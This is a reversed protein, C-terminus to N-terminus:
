ARIELALGGFSVGASTGVMLVKTGPPVRGAARALHFATPISAAVQNGYTSVIDIIRAADFGCRESLHRLALPSAQHPVVLDVDARAWGAAALLRDLFAPFREAAIKFLGRGDMQFFSGAAFREPEAHFDIATGGSAIQCLEYGDHHTEFRSTQILPVGGEVRVLVAAAAGDGFLGAVDPAEDWPLACSPIESSVVVANRYPGALLLASGVELASLFGLCTADVDFANCRGPPIGLCRAVIPATAPIAQRGVGCASIVLDVDGPMLDAEGLARSAATAAMGEQTEDHCVFRSEVGCRKALWGAPRGKERDLADSTIRASPTFTGTGQIRAASSGM